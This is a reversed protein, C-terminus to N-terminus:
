QLPGQKGKQREVDSVDNRFGVTTRSDLDGQDQHLKKVRDAHHSRWARLVEIGGCWSLESGSSMLYEM